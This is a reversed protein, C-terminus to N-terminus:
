RNDIRATLSILLNHLAKPSKKYAAALASGVVALHGYRLAAVVDHNNKIGFGLAVQSSPFLQKVTNILQPLDDGLQTSTGTIGKHTTIYILDPKLVKQLSQLRILSTGPSIVPIFLQRLAPNKQLLQQMDPSDFPLDPVIFGKCGVAVANKTFEVSNNFFLSQYYCMIFPKSQQFNTTQLLQLVHQRTIHQDVARSNAKMLIPGDALPDSFPIQIEIAYVNNKIMSELIVKTDLLTPYGAVVHTMLPKM